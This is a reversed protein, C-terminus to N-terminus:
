KKVSVSQDFECIGEVVSTSNSEATFRKGLVADITSFSFDQLLRTFRIETKDLNLYHRFRSKIGANKMRPQEPDFEWPHIYFVFPREERSNIQNLGVRTLLYPYLRFYGGGSIPLNCGARNLTSIPVEFIECDPDQESGPMWDGSGTRQLSFPFRPWDFSGYLDHQVPFVSSDYRYGAEVLEDFAWLSDPNISYSPARYGKVVVGTLDELLQKSQRVDNRFASRSQTPVRQHAYGHSAIEHGLAAIRKVLAPSYRAIWGLVFFTAKIDYASLIDLIKNTNQEVRSEFEPWCSVPNIKEFASVQFYDEVDISLMNVIAKKVM